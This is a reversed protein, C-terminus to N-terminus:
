VVKRWLIQTQISLTATVGGINRVRYRINASGNARNSLDLIILNCSQHNTGYMNYGVIGLPYYGEKTITKTAVGTFDGSSLSLSSVVTEATIELTDTSKTILSNLGELVENTANVMSSKDTTNLGNLDGILGKYEVQMKEQAQNMNNASLPTEGEWVADQVTTGDSAVVANQVKTGNKWEFLAM